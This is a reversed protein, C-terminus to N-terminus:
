KNEEPIKRNYSLLLFVFTKWLNRKSLLLWYNQYLKSGSQRPCACITQKFIQSDNSTDVAAPGIFIQRSYLIDVSLANSEHERTINIHNIKKGSIIITGQLLGDQTNWILCAKRNVGRVCVQRMGNFLQSILTSLQKGSVAPIRPWIQATSYGARRFRPKKNQLHSDEPIYRWTTKCFNFSTESTSVAELM